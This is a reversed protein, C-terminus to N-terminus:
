CLSRIQRKFLNKQFRPMISKEILNINNAFFNNAIKLYSTDLSVKRFSTFILNGNRFNAVYFRDKLGNNILFDFFIEADSSDKRLDEIIQDWYAEPREWTQFIVLIKDFSIKVCTYMKDEM